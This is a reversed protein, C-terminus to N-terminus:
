PLMEADRGSWLYETVPGLVVCTSVLFSLSALLSPFPLFLLFVSFSYFLSSVLSDGAIDGEKVEEM